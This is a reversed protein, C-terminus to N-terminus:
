NGVYIDSSKREVEFQQILSCRSNFKVIYHISGKMLEIEYDIRGKNYMELVILTKYEGYLKKVKELITPPLQEPFIESISKLLEGESNFTLSVTQNNYLFDARFLSHEKTWQVNEADPFLSIFKESVEKPARGDRVIMGSAITAFGIQISFVLIAYLKNM